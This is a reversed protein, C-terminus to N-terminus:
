SEEISQSNGSLGFPNLLSTDNKDYQSEEPSAIGATATMGAPVAIAAKPATNSGQSSLRLEKKLRFFEDIQTENTNVYNSQWHKTTNGLSEEGAKQLM